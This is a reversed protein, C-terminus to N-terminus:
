PTVTIQYFRQSHLFGATDIVQLIEGTGTINTSPVGSTLVPQWSAATLDDSFKVTYHRGTVTPFAIIFDDGSRTM